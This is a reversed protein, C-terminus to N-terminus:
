ECGCNACVFIEYELDLGRDATEILKLRLEGGCQDCRSSPPPQAITHMPNGKRGFHKPAVSCPAEEVRCAANPEPHALCCVIGCEHLYHKQDFAVAVKSHRFHTV